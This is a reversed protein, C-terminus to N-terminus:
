FSIIQQPRRKQQLEFGYQFTSLYQITNLSIKAHSFYSFTQFDSFFSHCAKNFETEHM